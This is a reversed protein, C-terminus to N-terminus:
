YKIRRRKKNRSPFISLSIHTLFDQSNHVKYELKRNSFTHLDVAFTEKKKKKKKTCQYQSIFFFPIHLLTARGEFKMQREAVGIVCLYQCLHYKEDHM